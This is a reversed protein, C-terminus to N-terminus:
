YRSNKEGKGEALYPFRFYKPQSMVPELKTDAKEIDAIYQEASMSNLSHHTYTHNGLNLGKSRYLELWPWEHKGIAGGIAFATVPINKDVLTDLIAMFREQTRKLNGPTSTGSGVFPFDDVTLAIEHVEAFCSTNIVGILSIVSLWKMFM